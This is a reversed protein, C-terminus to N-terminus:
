HSSAAWPSTLPRGPTALWTMLFAAPASTRNAMVGPRGVYMQGAQGPGFAESFGDFYEYSTTGQLHLLVHMENMVHLGTVFGPEYRTGVQIVDVVSPLPGVPVRTTSVIRPRSALRSGAEAIAGEGRAPILSSMFVRAAATRGENSGRVTVGPPVFLNKGATYTDTKGGVTFTLEGEMITLFRVAQESGAPSVAGPGYEIVAQGLYFYRAPTAVGRFAAAPFLPVQRPVQAQVAGATAAVSLVVLALCIEIRRVVTNM